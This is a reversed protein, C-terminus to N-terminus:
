DVIMPRIANPNVLKEEIYKKLEKPKSINETDIDWKGVADIKLSGYNFIRGLISQHVSIELVGPLVFKEESKALVGKKIVAIGPYFELSYHKAKLIDVIMIILPVILWFFLIEWWKVYPVASKKAIFSPQM